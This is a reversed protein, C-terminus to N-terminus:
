RDIEIERKLHVVNREDQKRRENKENTNKFNFM